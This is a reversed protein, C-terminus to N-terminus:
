VPGGEGEGAVNEDSGGVDAGVDAGVGFTARFGGSDFLASIDATVASTSANVAAVAVTDADM